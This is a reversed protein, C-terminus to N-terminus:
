YNETLFPRGITHKLDADRGIERRATRSKGVPKPLAPPILNKVNLRHSAAKSYAHMSERGTEMMDAATHPQVISSGVASILM